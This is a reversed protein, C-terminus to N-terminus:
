RHFNRLAIKRERLLRRKEDFLQRVDNFNGLLIALFLNLMIINGFLVLSIFYFISTWGISRYCDYMVTNWGDGVLVQFITVFSWLMSDFNARPVFSGNIDPDGGQSRFRLKGAFFQMGLLSYVYIFLTLLITFNSIAKFTHEVSDLLM